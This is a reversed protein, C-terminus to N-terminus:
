LGRRRLITIVKGEVNEMPISGFDRSDQCQTRYDGLIFVQGQPVTIPYEQGERAYTPYLIEGSQTTGNVLLTGSDDLTVVDNARAVIRGIRLKGSASYAVVDNKSYEQQLRFGILLDGDKVAPFMENGRVQTILFVQSLLVWGALGLFILRRLLSMYGQRDLVQNRRNIIITANSVHKNRSSKRVLREPNTSPQPWCRTM